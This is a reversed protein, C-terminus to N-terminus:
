VLFIDAATVGPHGSISAIQIAASAGSGDEDYYLFGKASDYLLRQDATTATSGYTLEGVDLAGLGYGALATFQSTSLQIRDTGSVFDGITDRNLSTELVDFVFTDAGLGGKLSDKGWSGNLVNAGDNGTLTNAGANGTANIDDVGYLTLKEINAGLTFSVTAKVSDVGGDPDSEIVLDNVDDVVYRDNGDGGEMIDAGAGGDLTDNDAGGLLHDSGGYGYLKDAGGGGDLTNAVDNGYLSNALGNGTGDIANTGTLYLKEVENALAFSVSAYVTDTGGGSAEVVMDGTADVTYKDNGNGGIMEDSGGRGDLVDNGEGGTLVNHLGNGSLTDSFASGILNEIGTLTDKGSGGTNQLVTLALDVKVAKIADAYSATDNGGGGDIVDNGAFGQFFDDAATGTLVDNGPTGLYTGGGGGGYPPLDATADDFQLHEVSTVIFSGYDGDAADTDTIVYGGTGDQVASWGTSQGYIQVTDDGAGGDVFLTAGALSAAADVYLTDDGDSLTATVHEIDNFNTYGNINYLTGSFSGGSSAIQSYYYGSATGSLDINLTDEGGYDYIYAYSLTGDSTYSDDGTGGYIQASEVNSVSTGGSVSSGSLSLDYTRGVTEAYDYATWYDYGDGGDITAIGGNTTVTDNGAGTTVTNTGGGLTINFQEWQTYTGYNSTITGNPAVIFSTNGLASFDATLTDIGGGGRLTATRGATGLPAADFYFTEDGDTLTFNLKEMRTYSVYGAANWVTGYWSASDGYAYGYGYNALTSFNVNLTDTGDGGDASDYGQPNTTFNFTDNAATGIFTDDGSTGTYTAM